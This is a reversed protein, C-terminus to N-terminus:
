FASVFQEISEVNSRLRFDYKNLVELTKLVKEMKHQQNVFSHNHYHRRIISKNRFILRTWISLRRRNLGMYIFLRFHSEPGNPKCKSLNEIIDDIAIILAQKSTIKISGSISPALNFSQSLTKISSSNFSPENRTNYYDEIASWVHPKEVYTTDDNKALNVGKAADLRAGQKGPFCIWSSILSYPDFILSNGVNQDYKEILGYALLDRLAPVLQRRVISEVLNEDIKKDVARNSSVTQGLNNLHSANCSSNSTEFLNILSDTALIVKNIHSSWVPEDDYHDPNPSINNNAKETSSIDGEQNEKSDLDPLNNINSTEDDVDCGPGKNRERMKVDSCIIHAVLNRISRSPKPASTEDNMIQRASDHSTNYDPDNKAINTTIIGKNNLNTDHKTSCHHVQCSCTADNLKSIDLKAKEIEKIIEVPNKKDEGSQLGEIQKELDLLRNQLQEVIQDKHIDQIEKNVQKKLEDYGLKEIDDPGISLQFRKQLTEIVLRQREALINAPIKSSVDVIDLEGRDYAYQELDKLQLRLKQILEIHHHRANPSGVVFNLKQGEVGAEGRAERDEKVQDLSTEDHNDDITKPDSGVTITQSDRTVLIKKEIISNDNEDSTEQVHSDLKVLKTIDNLSNISKVSITVDNDTENECIMLLNTTEVLEEPKEISIFPNSKTKYTAM